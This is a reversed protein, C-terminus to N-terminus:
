DLLRLVTDCDESAKIRLADVVGSLRERIAQADSILADAALFLEGEGFYRIDLMRDSQGVYELFANIKPDYSIGLMPVAMAAAFILMHLRTGIVFESHKMLACLEPATLGELVMGCGVAACLKKTIVTDRNPYMPVFIPTLSHKDCISKIDSAMISLTDRGTKAGNFTNGDKVSIIFYKGKISERVKIYDLWLDPSTEILFAPDASVNMERKVGIEKALALSANERLSVYDANAIAKAAHKRSIKASLPGLGNAYIMVKLGLYKAMHMIYAYYLSSRKSTGDQLLSGGGSILLRAHRMERWILPLNFRNITRVKCIRSIQKTKRALVTVRADPIRQRIGDVISVLLSDDGINDFGYYGSIIIDGRRYKCYPTLKKYLLEHDDTMKEVSYHTLIEERGLKGYYAREDASMEYVRRIDAAIDDATPLRETRFTFNTLRATSRIEDRFLGGYGQAGAFIVPKGVSMAELASRSVGVFVDACAVIEPIDTRSPVIKVCERGLEDNTNQAYKKLKDFANGGGVILVELSPMDRGILKAADCLKICPLLTENDVRSVCVARFADKDLNLEELIHEASADPSFRDTDIGNVTLTVNDSPIRYHNKLHEKIDCSVAFTHEGWDSILKLLPTVKFVGHASTIFRFGMRRALIGCVFAPIRSHAHVIDFRESKILAKLKAYSKFLAVPNKKHLPIIVHKVGSHELQDVFVGGFSAVTVDHGRAALARSLEVVHTEAGGIVMWMHTLLIKMTKGFRCGFADCSEKGFSHHM